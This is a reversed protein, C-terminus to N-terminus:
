RDLLILTTRYLCKTAITDNAAQRGNGFKYKTNSLSAEFRTGSMKFLGIAQNLGIFVTQAATDLCADAM